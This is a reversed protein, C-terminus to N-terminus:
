YPRKGEWNGPPDYNCIWLDYGDCTIKACGVKKTTKWVVQTYHGCMRGSRCKNKNYNYDEKESAWADVVEKPGYYGTTGKFLNEGFKNGSRHEFGCNKEKLQMAWDAALNAMNESWELKENVEVDERWYDHRELILDIEEQTLKSQDVKFIPNAILLFKLFLLIIIM